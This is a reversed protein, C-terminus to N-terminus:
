AGSADFLSHNLMAAVIAFDAAERRGFRIYVYRNRWRFNLQGQIFLLPGVIDVDHIGELPFVRAGAHDVVTVQEGDLTITAHRSVATVAHSSDM